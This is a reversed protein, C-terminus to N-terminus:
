KIRNNVSYLPIDGLRVKDKIEHSSAVKHGLMKLVQVFEPTGKQRFKM